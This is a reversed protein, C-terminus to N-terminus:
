VDRRARRLARLGRRALETIVLAGLALVIWHSPQLLWHVAGEAVAADHGPHALAAGASALLALTSTRLM